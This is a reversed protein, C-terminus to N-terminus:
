GCYSRIAAAAFAGTGEGAARDINETFEGGSGYAQGLGALIEKTCRYYHESIFDRLKGVLAQAEACSPERDRIQGFERFIDM